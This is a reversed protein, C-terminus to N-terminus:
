LFFGNILETAGMGIRCACSIPVVDATGLM